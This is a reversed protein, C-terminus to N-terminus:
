DCCPSSRLARVSTERFDGTTSVVFAEYCKFVNGVQAAEFCKTSTPLKHFDCYGVNFKSQRSEFIMNRAVSCISEDGGPEWKAGSLPASVFRTLARVLLALLQLHTQLHLQLHTQRQNGFIWHICTKAACVPLRRM